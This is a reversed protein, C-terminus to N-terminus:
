INCSFGYKLLSLGRQRKDENSSFVKDIHIKVHIFDRQTVYRAILVESIGEKSQLRYPCNEGDIEIKISEKISEDAYGKIYLLFNIDCHSLVPLFLSTTTSPGTWVACEPTNSADRYHMGNGIIPMNFDFLYTNNYYIPAISRTREQAFFEEFYELTYNFSLSQKTYIKLAEDYLELDQENISELFAITKEDANQSSSSNLKMLEKPPCWKNAFSLRNITTNYDETLGILDYEYLSEKAIKIQDEKSFSQFENDLGMKSKFVLRTEMNSLNLKSLESNQWNKVVEYLENEKAFKKFSRNQDPLNVLDNDSLRKWDMIQSIVREVPKRLIIFKFFDEHAYCTLPSHGHVFHYSNM